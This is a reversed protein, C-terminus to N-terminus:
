GHGVECVGLHHRDQEGLPLSLSLLRFLIDLHVLGLSSSNVERRQKTALVVM